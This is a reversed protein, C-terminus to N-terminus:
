PPLESRSDRTSPRHRDREIAELIRDDENTWHEAMMGAATEAGGPRWGTPPGPPRKKPVIMKVQVEVEQGEVVGLDLDLGGIM